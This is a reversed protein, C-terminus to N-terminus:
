MRRVGNSVLALGIGTAPFDTGDVSRAFPQYLKTLHEAKIGIANDRVCLRVMGNRPETWVEVQPPTSPPVFKLPNDLLNTLVHEVVVANARVPLLPQRLRVEARQTKNQDELPELVEPVLANLPVTEVPLEITNLRGLK